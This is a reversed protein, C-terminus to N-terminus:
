EGRNADPTCQQQRSRRRPLNFLDRYDMAFLDELKILVDFSPKTAGTELMQVAPKTIGVEQAVWAQTWGRKKREQRIM